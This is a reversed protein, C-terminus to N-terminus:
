QLADRSQRRFDAHHPHSRGASRRQRPNERKEELITPGFLGLKAGLTNQGSIVRLEGKVDTAFGRAVTALYFREKRATKVSSVNALM